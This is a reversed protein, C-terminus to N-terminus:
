AVSERHNRRRGELCAQRAAAGLLLSATTCFQAGTAMEGSFCCVGRRMRRNTRSDQPGGRNSLSRIPAAPMLSVMPPLHVPPHASPVTLRPLEIGCSGVMVLGPAAQLALTRLM